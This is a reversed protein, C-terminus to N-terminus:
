KLKNFLIFRTKLIRDHLFLADKDVLIWMFGLGCALLSTSALAYRVIAQQYNLTLNQQNVLKIKWTKTAVTQGTKCWCWVLYAGTALWLFLQLLLHKYISSAEGLLALFLGVCLMWLAILLLLEYVCAAFLRLRSVKLITNNKLMNEINIKAFFYGAL